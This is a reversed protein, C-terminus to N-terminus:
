TLFRRIERDSLLKPDARSLVYRANVGYGTLQKVIARAAIVGPRKGAPYQWDPDLWVLVPGGRSVIQVAVPEPLKTGLLSWAETHKGVRFASLIDETLVLVRGTGYKAVLRSRDVNPNVYKPRPDDPKWGMARGQWYAVREGDLVPLVVRGSPEHFYAGVRKIEPRGLAAKYLWVRAEEPWSDIDFNTPVPLTVSSALAEDAERESKRRALWEGLTETPKDVIGPEGCRFCYASWRHAEHRISLVRGPGCAHGVRASRGEDLEQAKALWDSPPLM